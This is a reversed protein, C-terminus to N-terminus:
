KDIFYIDDVWLDFSQGQVQFQCGIMNSPDFPSGDSVAWVPRHLDSYHVTFLQWADTLALTVGFSGNCAGGDCIGGSVPQATNRDLVNFLVVTPGADGAARAWFTFGQYATADYVHPMGSDVNLNFGMGAGYNTFGSNGVVHAAHASAGRGGPIVAIIQAATGIPALAPTLMGGDTGDDFVYWTGARPNTVSVGDLWGTPVGRGEMDDILETVIPKADFAADTGGEGAGNAAADAPSEDFDFGDFSADGTATSGDATMGSDPMPDFGSEQTADPVAQSADFAVGSSGLGGTAGDVTPTLQLDHIGAVIECGWLSGVALVFVARKVNPAV